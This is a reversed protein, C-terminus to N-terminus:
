GRVSTNSKAYRTNNIQTMITATTARMSPTSMIRLAVYIRQINKEITRARTEHRDRCWDTWRVTSNKKNGEVQSAQKGVWKGVQKGAQRSTYGKDNNMTM